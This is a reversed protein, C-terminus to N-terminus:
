PQISPRECEPSSMYKEYICIDELREQMLSNLQNVEEFICACSRELEQCYSEVRQIESVIREKEQQLDKPEAAGERNARYRDLDKYFEAAWSQLDGDIPQLAALLAEFDVRVESRSVFDIKKIRKVSPSLTDDLMPNM